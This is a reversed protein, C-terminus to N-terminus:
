LYEESTSKKHPFFKIFYEVSKNNIKKAGWGLGRGVLPSLPNNRSNKKSEPEMMFDLVGEGFLHHAMEEVRGGPAPSSGLEQKLKAVLHRTIAGLTKNLKVAM